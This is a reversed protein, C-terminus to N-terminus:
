QKPRKFVYLADIPGGPEGLQYCPHIGVLEWGRRGYEKLGQVLEWSNSGGALQWQGSKSRSCYGTTYDWEM